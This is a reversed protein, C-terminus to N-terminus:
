AAVEAQFRKKWDPLNTSIYVFDVVSQPAFNAPLNAASPVLSQLNAALKVKTNVPGVGAQKANATQFEPAILLDIMGSAVAQAPGGKVICMTNYVLFGGEKPFAVKLDIGKQVYPVIYKSFQPAVIWVEGSALQNFTVAQNTDLSHLQPKLQHLYQFGRDVTDKLNLQGTASLKKGDLALGGLLLGFVASTFTINPFKIKGKFEPRLLDMWSTISKVYKANYLITDYSLSFAVGRTNEYVAWGPLSSINPMQSKDIPALLDQTVATHLVPEEMVVLSYTESGRESQLTALNTSSVTNDNYAVHTKFKSEIAPFWVSKMVDAQAGTYVAIKTQAPAKGTVTGYAAPLKAYTLSVGLAGLLRLFDRRRMDFTM